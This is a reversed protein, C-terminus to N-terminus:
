HCHARSSDTYNRGGRPRVELPLLGFGPPAEPCRTRQGATVLVSLPRGHGDCALHVKTSFGGRSRGLAEDSVGLRERKTGVARAGQARGPRASPRAGSDVRREGGVRDEWGRGVQDARPGAPAGLHRRAALARVSRLLDALPRLARAPGKVAGWDEAEVSYRKDGQPARALARRAPRGRALAARGV